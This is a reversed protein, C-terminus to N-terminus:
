RPCPMTQQAYQFLFIGKCYDDCETNLCYGVARLM